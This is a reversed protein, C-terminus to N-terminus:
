VTDYYSVDTRADSAIYLPPPLPQARAAATAPLTTVASTGPPLFKDEGM